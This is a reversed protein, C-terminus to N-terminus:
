SFAVRGEIIAWLDCALGCGCDRSSVHGPSNNYYSAKFVTMSCLHASITLYDHLCHRQIAIPNTSSRYRYIYTCFYATQKCAPRVEPICESSRKKLFILSIHIPQKYATQINLQQKRSFYQTHVFFIPSRFIANPLKNM